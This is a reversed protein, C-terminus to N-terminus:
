QTSTGVAIEAAPAKRDEAEFIKNLLGQLYMGNDSTTPNGRLLMNNASTALGTYDLSRLQPGDNYTTRSQNPHLDTSYSM